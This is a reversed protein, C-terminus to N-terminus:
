LSGGAVVEGEWPSLNFTYAMVGSETDEKYPLFSPNSLVPRGWLHPVSQSGRCYTRKDELSRPSKQLGVPPSPVTGSEKM